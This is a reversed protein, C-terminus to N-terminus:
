RGPDQPPVAAVAQRARTALDALSGGTLADGLLPGGMGVALAGAQLWSGIDSLSIGGTPMIKINPMPGHLDKIYRPGVASAPFLKVLPAGADSAASLETPTLAGPYMPVGSSRGAALVHPQMVPSVLFQAGAETADRVHAVSMVSGAGVAVSGPASRVISRLAQVAGATTLTVEIARIGEKILVETAAEFHEASAARLVAVVRGVTLAESIESSASGSGATM